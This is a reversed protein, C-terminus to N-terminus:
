RLVVGMGRLCRARPAHRARIREDALLRGARRCCYVADSFRGCESTVCSQIAGTARVQLIDALMSAIPHFTELSTPPRFEVMCSGRLVHDGSGSSALSLRAMGSGGSNPAVAGAGLVRAESDDLGM